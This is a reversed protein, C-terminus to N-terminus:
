VNSEKGAWRRCNNLYECCSCHFGPSPVFDKRTLGEVYSEMSRFLRSKQNDSMPALQTIVLKPVKTKVLHHLEVGSEKHGTGERYLASYCSTQTEHLHEATESNPTQAATKFDVIRGGERVLDLIGILKPLGQSSLDAEVPVEVAEPKEDAPIPSEKFYMALLAWAGVREEQEEGDWNITTAKEKWGQAFLTQFRELVFAERRWRAKNWAQLVAHVV